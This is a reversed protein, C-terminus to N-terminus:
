LSRQSALSGDAIKDRVNRHYRKVCRTSLKKCELMDILILDERRGTSRSIREPGSRASRGVAHCAHRLTVKYDCSGDQGFGLRYSQYISAYIRGSTAGVAGGAPSSRGPSTAAPTIALHSSPPTPVCSTPRGRSRSTLLFCREDGRPQRSTATRARASVSRRHERDAPDAELSARYVM